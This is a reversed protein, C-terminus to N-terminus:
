QDICIAPNTGVPEQCGVQCVTTTFGTGESTCTKVASRAECGIQVRGCATTGPASSLCVDHKGDKVVCTQCSSRNWDNRLDNCTDVSGTAVGAVMVCHAEGPECLVCGSVGPSCYLPPDCTVSPTFGVAPNACALVARNDDSCQTADDTACKDCRGATPNCYAERACTEPESWNGNVCKVLVAGFCAFARESADCNGLGTSGGISPAGGTAGGGGVTSADTVGGDDVGLNYSGFVFQCAPTVITSLLFGLRRYQSQLPLHRPHQHRTM